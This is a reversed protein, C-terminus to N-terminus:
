KKLIHAIKYMVKELFTFYPLLFPYRYPLLAKGLYWKLRADKIQKEEIYKELWTLFVQRAPNPRNPDYEGKNIAVYSTSEPHQRYKDWCQDTVFVGGALGLKFIFVQDEYLDQISEEFAGLKLITERKALLGCTCFVVGPNKLFLTVMDPPSFLTNGPVGLQGLYDKAKDELQGTWSYWYITPGYVMVTAPQSELIKVQNELKEPLFIDDADLLAIYKGQAKQIGLNRSTSKGRNKHDLHELYIIQGPYQDAYQKAIATSGDQSGDDILLLEWHSYTQAIVSEITEQFYKEAQFFPTIISVLPQNNIM